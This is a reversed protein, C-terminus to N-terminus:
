LPSAFAPRQCAQEMLLSLKEQTLELKKWQELRMDQLREWRQELPQFPREWEVRKEAAWNV